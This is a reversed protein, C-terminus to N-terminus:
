FRPIKVSFIRRCCGCGQGSATNKSKCFGVINGNSDKCPCMGGTEAENISPELAERKITSPNALNDLGMAGMCECQIWQDDGNDLSTKDCSGCCRATKCGGSGTMHCEYDASSGGCGEKENILEKISEKIIKRLQSKKM